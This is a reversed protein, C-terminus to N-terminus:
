STGRLKLVPARRVAPQRDERRERKPRQRLVPDSANAGILSRRMVEQIVIPHMGLM